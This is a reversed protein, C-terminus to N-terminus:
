ETAAQGNGEPQTLPDLSTAAASANVKAPTKKGKAKSKAKKAVKTVKAPKAVIPKGEPKSKAAAPKSTAPKNATKTSRASSAEGNLENMVKECAAMVIQGIRTLKYYREKGIRNAQVVGSSRMLALHHSTAPQSNQIADVLGGVNMEGDPSEALARM